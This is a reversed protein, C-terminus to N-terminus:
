GEIKHSSHQSFHTYHLICLKPTKLMTSPLQLGGRFAHFFDVRSSLWAYAIETTYHHPEPLSLQTAGNRSQSVGVLLTNPSPLQGRNLNSAVVFGDSEVAAPRGKCGSRRFSLSVTQYEAGFMVNRHPLAAAFVDTNICTLTNM